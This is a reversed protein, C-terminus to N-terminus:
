AITFQYKKAFNNVEKTSFIGKRLVQIQPFRCFDLLSSPVGGLIEKTSISFDVKSTLAESINVLKCAPNDGSTNASTGVLPTQFFNILQKAVPHSTIRFGISQTVLHKQPFNLYNSLKNTHLIITAKGEGIAQIVEKQRSNVSAWQLLMSLSDVLVLLPSDIKRDKIAYIQQVSADYTALCGVAYFSETPFIFIKKCSAFSTKYSKQFNSFNQFLEM